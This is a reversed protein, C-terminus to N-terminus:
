IWWEKRITQGSWWRIALFLVGATALVQVVVRLGSLWLLAVLVAAWFGTCYPCNLLEALTGNAWRDTPEGHEDLDYDIGIAKRLSELLASFVLGYTITWAALACIIIDAIM